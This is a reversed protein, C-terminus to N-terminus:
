VMVVCTPRVWNVRIHPDAYVFHIAVPLRHFPLGYGELVGHPLCTVWVIHTHSSEEVVNLDGLANEGVPSQVPVARHPYVLVMTATQTPRALNGCDVRM